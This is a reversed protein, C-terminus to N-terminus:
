LYYYTSYLCSFIMFSLFLQTLRRKRGKEAKKGYPSIPFSQNGKARRKGGKEAKYLQILCFFSSFTAFPFEWKGSAVDNGNSPSSDGPARLFLLGDCEGCSFSLVYGGSV